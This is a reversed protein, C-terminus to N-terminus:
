PSAPLAVVVTGILGKEGRTLNVEVPRARAGARVDALWTRLQQGSIGSLTLVARDGQESLRASSGLRGSAAKLAASAQDRPLAPTARLTRVDAALAQMAQLQADLADLRRPAERLTRWAPQLALSWLLFLGLVWAALQVLRRERPARAAWATQLPQLAGRWDGVSIGAVRSM